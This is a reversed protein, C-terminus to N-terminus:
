QSISWNKAFSEPIGRRSFLLIREAISVIRLILFTWNVSLLIAFINRYIIQLFKYRAVNDQSFLNSYIKKRRTEIQVREPSSIIRDLSLDFCNLIEDHFFPFSLFPLLSNEFPFPRWGFNSTVGIFKEARAHEYTSASLHQARSYLFLSHTPPM